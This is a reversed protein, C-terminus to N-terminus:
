PTTNAKPNELAVSSSITCQETNGKKREEKKKKKKKMRAAHWVDALELRDM